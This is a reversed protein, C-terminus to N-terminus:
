RAEPQPAGPASRPLLLDELFYASLDSRSRLGSKRYVVLAQQRVTAESTNRAEAVEKHTLGKLLLLGVEREAPTLDWREFQAEIAEGLGQLAEAAEAKYRNAEQLAVELSLGLTAARSQAAWFGRWLAVVGVIALAMVMAEVLLHEWDAGTEADGFLDVGMMMGIILFLVAGLSERRRGVDREDQDQLENQRNSISANFM